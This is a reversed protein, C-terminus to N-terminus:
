RKIAKQKGLLEGNKATLNVLYIGDSYDSLDIVRKQAYQFTEKLM